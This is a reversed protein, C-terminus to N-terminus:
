RFFRYTVSVGIGNTPLTYHITTNDVKNEVKKVGIFDSAFLAVALKKRFLEKSLNLRYFYNQMDKNAGSSIPFFYGGNAALSINHPLLLDAGASLQGYTGNDKDGTKLEISQHGLMALGRLRFKETLRHTAAVSFQLQQFHLAERYQSFRYEDPYNISRTLLSSGPSNQYIADATVQTKEGTYRYNLNLKNLWQHGLWGAELIPEPSSRQITYDLALSNHDNFRYGINLFPYLAFSEDFSSYMEYPMEWHVGVGLHLHSLNLAYQAYATWRQSDFPIETLQDATSQVPEFVPNNGALAVKPAYLYMADKWDLKSYRAGAELSSRDNFPLFFDLRVAQEKPKNTDDQRIQTLEGMFATVVTQNLTEKTKGWEYTLKVFGGRTFLHKYYAALNYNRSNGNLSLTSQHMEGDYMGNYSADNIFAEGPNTFLNFSAGVIDQESIQWGAHLTANHTQDDRVRTINSIHYQSLDSSTEMKAFNRFGYAYNGDLFFGKHRANVQVNGGFLTSTAGHATAELTIGETQRKRTILNIVGGDGLTQDSAKRSVQIEIREVRSAPMSSLFSGFTSKNLKQPFGDVCLTNESLGAVYIMDQADVIVYPLKQLIQLVNASLAEPDSTVNYSYINSNPPTAEQQGFALLPLM